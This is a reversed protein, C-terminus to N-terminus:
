ITERLTRARVMGAIEQTIMTAVLEAETPSAIKAALNLMLQTILTVQLPFHSLDSRIKTFQRAAELEVIIEATEDPSLEIPGGDAARAKLGHLDVM